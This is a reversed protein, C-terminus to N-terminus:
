TNVYNSLVRQNDYAEAAMSITSVILGTEKLKMSLESDSFYIWSSSCHGAAFPVFAKTLVCGTAQPLSVRQSRLSSSTLSAPVSRAAPVWTISAVKRVSRRAARMCSLALPILFSPQIELTLKVLFVSILAPTKASDCAAM